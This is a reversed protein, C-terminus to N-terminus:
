VSSSLWLLVNEGLLEEWSPLPPASEFRSPNHLEWAKHWDKASWGRHEELGADVDMLEGCDFNCEILSSTGRVMDSLLRPFAEFHYCNNRRWESFTPTPLHGSSYAKDLTLQWAADRHAIQFIEASKEPTPGGDLFLKFCNAPMGASELAHAEVIWRAVSRIISRARLNRNYVFRDSFGPWM